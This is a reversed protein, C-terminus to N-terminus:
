EGASMGMAKAVIDALEKFDRVTPKHERKLSAFVKDGLIGRVASVAKGDEFAELTDVSCDDLTAPITFSRGRWEIIVTETAEAENQAPTKNDETM